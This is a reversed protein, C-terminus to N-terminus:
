IPASGEFFDGIVSSWTRSSIVVTGGEANVKDRSDRAQELTFGNQLLFYYYDDASLEVEGGKRKAADLIQEDTVIGGIIGTVEESGDGLKAPLNLGSLDIDAGIPTEKEKENRAEPQPLPKISDLTIADENM